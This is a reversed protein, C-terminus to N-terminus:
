NQLEKFLNATQRKYIGIGSLAAGIVTSIIGPVLGIFWTTPTIQARLTDSIMLSSSKMISEMNIGYEQMLWSVSLGLITGTITGIIGIM